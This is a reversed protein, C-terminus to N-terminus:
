QISNIKDATITTGGSLNLLIVGDKKSVSEVVGKTEVTNDTYGITKGIMMSAEVLSNSNGNSSLVESINGPTIKKGDSLTFEVSGNVFKVGVIQGTGENTIPKGDVGNKDTLEHWKVQKGVFNSYEIMQTQEQAQAFKEFANTLNTMQELSSFQAMQAIFENDKMPNTPDQNQLQTMLIKLFEDKGLTSNGTTKTTKKSSLYMNSTIPTLDAM